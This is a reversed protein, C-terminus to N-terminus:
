SQDFFELVEKLWSLELVDYLVKGDANALQHLVGKVHLVGVLEGRQVNRAVISIEFRRAEHDLHASVRHANVVTLPRKLQALILKRATYQLIQVVCSILGIM